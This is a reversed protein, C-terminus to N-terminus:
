ATWRFVPLGKGVLGIVTLQVSKIGILPPGGGARTDCISKPSGPGTGEAGREDGSCYSPSAPVPGAQEM